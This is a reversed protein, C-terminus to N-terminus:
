SVILGRVKASGLWIRDVAAHSEAASRESRSVCGGREEMVDIQAHMRIRWDVGAEQLLIDWEAVCGGEILWAIAAGDHEVDFIPMVRNCLHCLPVLNQVGDLGDRARNVIHGRELGALSWRTEPDTVDEPWGGRVGCAFCHPRDIIVDFWGARQAWYSAIRWMSPLQPPNRYPTWDPSPLRQRNAGRELSLGAVARRERERAADWWHDGSLDM